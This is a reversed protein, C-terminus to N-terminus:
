RSLLAVVFEVRGVDTYAFDESLAHPVIEGTAVNKCEISNPDVVGAVAAARLFEPFDIQPDLPTNAYKLPTTVTLRLRISSSEVPEAGAVNAVVLVVMVAVTFGVGRRARSAHQMTGAGHDSYQQLRCTM